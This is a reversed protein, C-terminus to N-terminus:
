TPAAPGRGGGAPRLGGARGQLPGVRAPRERRGLREFFCGGDVSDCADGLGNSNGDRQSTNTTTPCNDCGNIVSDGDYDGCVDGVGDGDGDEQAPNFLVPCNDDLGLWGDPQDVSICSKDTEKLGAAYGVKIFDIELDRVARNSPIFAFSTWTGNKFDNDASLDVSYNHFRGDPVLFAENVRPVRVNM